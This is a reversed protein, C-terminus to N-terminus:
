LNWRPNCDSLLSSEHIRVQYPYTTTDEKASRGTYKVACCYPLVRFTEVM